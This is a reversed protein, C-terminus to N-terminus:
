KFAQPAHVTSGEIHATEYEKPERVDLLIHSQSGQATLLRRLEQTSIEYDMM